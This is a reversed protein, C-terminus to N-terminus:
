KKKKRGFLGVFRKLLGKKKIIETNKRKKSHRGMARIEEVRKKKLEKLEKNLNKFEQKSVGKDKAKEIEEEKQIIKELTSPEKAKQETKESKPKEEEYYKESIKKPLSNIFDETKKEEAMIREHRENDAIREREEQSYDLKIKAARLKSYLSAKQLQEMELEYKENLDKVEAKAEKIKQDL